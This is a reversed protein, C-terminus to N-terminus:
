SRVEVADALRPEGAMDTARETAESGRVLRDLGRVYAVCVAFFAFAIGVFIIDQM